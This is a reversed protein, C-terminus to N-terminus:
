RRLTYESDCILCCLTDIVLPFLNKNVSRATWELALMLAGVVEDHGIFRQRLTEHTAEFRLTQM